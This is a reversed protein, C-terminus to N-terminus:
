DVLLILLLMQKKSQVKIIALSKLLINLANQLIISIFPCTAFYSAILKNKKYICTNYFRM